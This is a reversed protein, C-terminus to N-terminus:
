ELDYKHFRIAYYVQEKSNPVDDVEKVKEDRIAKTNFYSNAPSQDVLYKMYSADKNYLSTLPNPGSEKFYQMNFRTEDKTKISSNFQFVEINSTNIKRELDELVVPKLDEDKSSEKTIESSIKLSEQVEYTQSTKFAINMSPFEVVKSRCNNESFNKMTVKSLDKCLDTFMNDYEFDKPVFSDDVTAFTDENSEDVLVNKWEKKIETSTADKKCLENIQESRIKMPIHKLHEELQKKLEDNMFALHVDDETTEERARDNILELMNDYPKIIESAREYRISMHRGIEKSRHYIELITRGAAQSIYKGGLFLLKVIFDM